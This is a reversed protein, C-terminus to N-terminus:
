EILVWYISNFNSQHNWHHFNFRKTTKVIQDGKITISIEIDSMNSLHIQFYLKKNQASLNRKEFNNWHKVTFPPPLQQHQPINYLYLLPPFQLASISHFHTFPSDFLVSLPPSIPLPTPLYAHASFRIQFIDTSAKSLNRRKERM